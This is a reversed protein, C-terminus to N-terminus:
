NNKREEKKRRSKEAESNHDIWHIRSMRTRGTPRIRLPLVPSYRYSDMHLRHYVRYLISISIQCAISDEEQGEEQETDVLSDDETDYESEGTADEMAMGGAGVGVGVGGYAVEYSTYRMAFQYFLGGRM